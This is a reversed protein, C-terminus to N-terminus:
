MTKRWVRPFIFTASVLGAMLLAAAITIVTGKRRAPTDVYDLVIRHPGASLDLVMIGLEDDTKISVERGDVTAKWGPYNFTRIRVRDPVTLSVGVVRHEPKWQAISVRGNGEALMAPEMEPLEDTTAPATRPIVVDNLHQPEPEFRVAGWMPRLVEKSSVAASGGIILLTLVGFVIVKARRRERWGDRAAQAAIGVLLALALGTISLMRWSFVGIEIEPIKRGIPASARTMMFSAFCGLIFWTVLHGKLRSTSGAFRGKVAFLELGCLIIAGAGFLWINDIRKFFEPNDKTYELGAFVYTEHYPWDAEITEHRILNQEVAAPYLYAASLALAFVISIAVRLPGKWDRRLVTLLLIMLAWALSFQFATPPHSWLFAAYSLTVGAMNLLVRRGDGPGQRNIELQDPWEGQTKRYQGAWSRGSFLRDTFLLILPMWVFSSLEAIAGRQYQDLLHYPFVVYAAVAVLATMRSLARRAYLYLAFASGVMLLLIVSFIVWTWNRTFFYLVSTLYYIGPPYFSTTPAGYGLNTDEEWRPYFEGAALGNYFSKMQDLHLDMDHTDPMRLEWARDDPSPEGMFFFPIVAAASLGICLLLVAARRGIAVADGM